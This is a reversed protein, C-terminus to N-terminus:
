AGEPRTGGVVEHSAQDEIWVRLGKETDAAKIEYDRGPKAEFAITGKREDLPIVPAPRAGIGELYAYRVEHRGPTLELYSTMYGSTKGDVAEIQLHRGAIGGTLNITACCLRSIRAYPREPGAYLRAPESCASLGSIAVVAAAVLLSAPIRVPRKM